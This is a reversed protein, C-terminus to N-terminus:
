RGKRVTVTTRVASAKKAGTATFAVRLGVKVSRGRAVQRQASATLPVQLTYTTARKATRSTTRVTKGTVRIKGAQPTDIRVTLRRSTTRVSRVRLKPTGTQVPQKHGESPPTLQGSGIPGKPPDAIVPPRCEGEGACPLAADPFGGGVRAVYVDYNSNRDAPLLSERTSFFANRGTPDLDLAYSPMTGQGSTLLELQKGDPADRDWLYVDRVNNEDAAVLRDPSDFLIWRGDDSVSHGPQSFRRASQGFDSPAGLSTSTPDLMTETGVVEQVTLNIGTTRGVGDVPQCSLCTPATDGVSWRYLQLTAANASPRAPDLSGTAGFIWTQGADQSRFVQLRTAGGTSLAVTASGVTGVQVSADPDAAADWFRLRWTNGNGASPSELFLMQRGDPTLGYPTGTIAPRAVVAGTELNADQMVGGGVLRFYARAGDRSAAALDSVGPRGVAAGTLQRTQQQDLDRVYIGDASGVRFLVYRGDGALPSCYSTVVAPRPEQWDYCPLQAEQQVPSGDPYRSVLEVQGDRSAYVSWAEAAPAGAALPQRSGFAVTSGDRSVVINGKVSNDGTTEPVPTIGDAPRSLWAPASGDDVARFVGPLLSGPPLPVAGLNRAYFVYNRGDPTVRGGQPESKAIETPTDGHDVSVTATNAAWRNTSRSGFIMANTVGSWPSGLGSVSGYLVRDGDDSAMAPAPVLPSTLGAISASPDDVPSVLEYARGTPAAAAATEIAGVGAVTLAAALLTGAASVRAARQLPREGREISPRKRDTTIRRTM